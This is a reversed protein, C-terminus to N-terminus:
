AAMALGAYRGNSVAGAQSRARVTRTVAETIDALGSDLAGAVASIMESSPDKTGREIESLYQMSIGARQAVEQLTSGRQQRLGRLHAGLVDRWLPEEPEPAPGAPVARLSAM